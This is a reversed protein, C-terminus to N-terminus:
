LHVKNSMSMIKPTLNPHNEKKVEERSGRSCSTARNLSQYSNPSMSFNLIKDVKVYPLFLPTVRSELFHGLDFPPKEAILLDCNDLILQFILDIKDPKTVRLSYKKFFYSVFHANKGGQLFQGM